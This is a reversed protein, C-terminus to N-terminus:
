NGGAHIPCEEELSIFGKEASIMRLPTKEECFIYIFFCSVNVHIKSQFTRCNCLSIFQVQLKCPRFSGLNKIMDKIRGEPSLHIEGDIVKNKKL